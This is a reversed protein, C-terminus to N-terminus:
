RSLFSARRIRFRVAIPPTTRALPLRAGPSPSITARPPSTDIDSPCRGSRFPSLNLWPWGGRFCVALLLLTLKSNKSAPLRGPGEAEAPTRASQKRGFLPGEHVVARLRRSELTALISALAM